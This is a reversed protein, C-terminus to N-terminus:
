ARNWGCAEASAGSIPFRPSRTCAADLATGCLDRVVSYGQGEAYKQVASGIDGVRNGPKCVALAKFFCERTVDILRRSEDSIQGIAFTRTMDGTFGGLSACLDVGVIDGERLVRNGPVGHVVEENVSACITAPYGNYGKCTPVGGNDRIYEEVARDLEATTVGPRVLAAAVEMSRATLQCAKKMLAIEEDSKIFIM